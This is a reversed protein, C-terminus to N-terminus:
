GDQLYTNMCAGGLEGECIGYLYTEGLGVRTSTCVLGLSINRSPNLICIVIVVTDRCGGLGM